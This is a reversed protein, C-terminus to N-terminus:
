ETFLKTLDTIFMKTREYIIEDKLIVEEFTYHIKIGGRKGDM